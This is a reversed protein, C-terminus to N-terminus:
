FFHSIVLDIIQWCKGVLVNTSASLFPFDNSHFISASLFLFLNKSEKINKISKTKTTKFSEEKEEKATKFWQWHKNFRIKEKLPKRPFFFISKLFVLVPWIMFSRIRLVPQSMELNLFKQPVLVAPLLEKVIRRFFLLYLVATERQRNDLQQLNYENFNFLM